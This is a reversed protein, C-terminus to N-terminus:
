NRVAHEGTLQVKAIGVNLLRSDTPVLTPKEAIHIAIRNVVKDVAFLPSTVFSSGNTVSEYVGVGNVKVDVHRVASNVGPGPLCQFSIQYKQESPRILLIEGDNNLWRWPSPGDEVGYWNSGVAVYDSFPYLEFRSSKWIAAHGTHGDIMDGHSRSETLVYRDSYDHTFDNAGGLTWPEFYLLPEMLSVRLDRLGYAAWMQVIGDQVDIM